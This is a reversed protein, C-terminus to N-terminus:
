CEDTCSWHHLLCGSFPVFCGANTPKTNSAKNCMFQSVTASERWLSKWRRSSSSVRTTREMNTNMSPCSVCLCLLFHSTNFRTVTVAIIVSSQIMECLLDGATEGRATIVRRRVLGAGIEQTELSMEFTAHSLHLVSCMPLIVVFILLKYDCVWLWRLCLASWEVATQNKGKRKKRGANTGSQPDYNVLGNIKAPLILPFHKKDQQLGMSRGNVGILRLCASKRQPSCVARSFTRAEAQSTHGASLRGTWAGHRDVSEPFAKRPHESTKKRATAWVSDSATLGRKSWM